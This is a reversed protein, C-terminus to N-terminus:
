KKKMFKISKKHLIYENELLQQFKMILFSMVSRFQSDGEKMKEYVCTNVHGDYHICEVGDLSKRKQPQTFVIPIIQWERDNKLDAIDRQKNLPPLVDDHYVINLYIKPEELPDTKEDSNM